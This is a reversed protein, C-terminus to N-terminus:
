LPMQWHQVSTATLSQRMSHEYDMVNLDSVQLDPEATWGDGAETTNISQM